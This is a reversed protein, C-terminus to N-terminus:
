CGTRVTRTLRSLEELRAPEVPVSNQDRIKELADRAIAALEGSVAKGNRPAIEIALNKIVAREYGTAFNVSTTLSAFSTLLVNARYNLTEAEGPTPYLSIKGLPFEPTYTMFRPRAQSSKVAQQRYVNQTLLRVRHDTGGSDRIFADNRIEIPRNTNFAGGSGVTYRATGATLAESEETEAFILLNDLSWSELLNNLDLFADQEVESFVNGAIAPIVRIDKLAKQIINRATITAM